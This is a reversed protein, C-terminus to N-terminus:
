ESQEPPKNWEPLPLPVGNTLLEPAEIGWTNERLVLQKAETNELKLVPIQETLFTNEEFINPATKPTNEWLDFGVGRDGSHSFTNGSITNAHGGHIFVSGASTRSITNGAIECGSAGEDLYIGVGLGPGYETTGLKRTHGPVDTITNNRITVGMPAFHREGNTYIAGTDSTELSVHQILNSEITHGTGHFGIGWRPAHHIHNGAVTHNAGDARIGAGQKFNKGIHSIKCGRVTHAKGTLRIGTAGLDTFHTKTVTCDSGGSIDLAATDHNGYIQTFRCNTIKCNKSDNIFVAASGAHSFTIGELTISESRSIVILQERITAHLKAGPEPPIIELEGKRKNHFYEGPSDLLAPSGEIFFQDGARIAFTTDEALTITRSTSNHNTVRETINWWHYRPLIQIQGSTFKPLKLAEDYNVTRFNEEPLDQWYPVVEGPVTAYGSDPHRALHLSSTETHIGYLPKGPELFNMGPLVPISGLLVVKGQTAARITLHADHSDLKLPRELRYTGPTIEITAAGSFTGSARLERIRDRAAELTPSGDGPSIQIVPNAALLIEATAAFVLLTTRM